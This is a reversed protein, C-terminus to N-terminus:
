PWFIWLTDHASQCSVCGHYWVGGFACPLYLAKPIMGWFDLILVICDDHFLTYEVPLPSLIMRINFCFRHPLYKLGKQLPVSPSIHSRDSNAKSWQSGSPRNFNLYTHVDFDELDGRIHRVGCELVPTGCSVLPVPTVERLTTILLIYQCLNFRFVLDPCPRSLVWMWLRLPSLVVYVTVPVLLSVTTLM